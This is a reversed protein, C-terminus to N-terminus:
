RSPAVRFSIKTETRGPPWPGGIGLEVPDNRHVGHRKAPGPRIQALQVPTVRGPPRISIAQCPPLFMIRM